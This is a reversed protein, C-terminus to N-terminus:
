LLPNGVLDQHETPKKVEGTFDGGRLLTGQSKKGKSLARQLEAAGRSLETRM